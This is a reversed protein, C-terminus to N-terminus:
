VDCVSYMNGAVIVVNGVFVSMVPDDQTASANKRMTRRHTTYLRKRWSLSFFLGGDGGGSSCGVGGRGKLRWMQYSM